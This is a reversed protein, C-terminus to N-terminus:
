KEVEQELKDFIEKGKKSVFYKYYYKMLDNYVKSMIKKAIVGAGNMPDKLENNAKIVERILEEFDEKEEQSFKLEKSSM